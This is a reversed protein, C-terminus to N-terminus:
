DDAGGMRYKYDYNVIYDLEEESFGYHKALLKDIKDTIPKNHRPHFEDYIVKGTTKYLTTKRTANKRYNNMLEAVLSIIQKENNKHFASLNIPFNVIERKNLHRCDSMVVYWWYFLSSNILACLSTASKDNVFITKIQTSPKEGDRENWFYPIFDTARTWYRAADYFHVFHKNKVPSLASSLLNSCHIKSMISHEIDEGIKPISCVNKVIFPQSYAFSKFLYPRSESNWKLNMTTRPQGKGSTRLFISLKQEVDGFLKAPRESYTSVWFSNGKLKEILSSMNDTAFAPLPIIMGIFSNNSALSIAREVFFAYLDGCSETRFNRVTYQKRLDATYRVYPPNGIVVDFGGREVINYFESCWHFPKHTEQWKQLNENPLDDNIPIPVGYYRAMYRNLEHNLRGLESHLEAKAAGFEATNIDAVTQADVFRNYAVGVAGLQLYIKTAGGILQLEASAKESFDDASAFGVLANGSRINFDIDPLPELGMNPKSDDKEAVAALKLFLRLKAVEAAEPMIDVGFLNGLIISRYIWYEESSHTKMEALIRRFEKHRLAGKRTNDERLKDDEAVFGRMRRICEAYLPELVNLAAFLFAGSGCAPDLVSIGRRERANTGEMEKRGAVAVFFASIFDSGEHERLANFVLKEIDLNHTTLDAIDSIEGNMIKEKLALYRARRILAERWTETPLAFEEAAATNWKARRQLLDSANADLGARIKEPIQSESLNGGKRVSDYIYHDPNERLLKWITGSRANFAEACGDKARRLLHPLITNRAIYGTIDEQTYYAGMKARDNIYKEFIHGIVDPNIENGGATARDDLHWKYKDFFKFLRVFASDDIDLNEYQRELEHANFLGGNLYPVKGIRQKVDPAREAYPAALGRHFLTMLFHRYFSAYFSKGTDNQLHEALRNQLYRHDNNLFGRSQIFYVFMLRNLMLAAYQERDIQEGLGKVFEQFKYLEDRFQAYFNRTIKQANRVFVEEVKGVVDAVTLDNEDALTFLLGYLKELLFDPSQGAALSVEVIRIPKDPRKVAIMWVQAGSDDRLVLLHEYHFRSLEKQLRQRAAKDQLRSDYPATCVVFGRKQAIRSVTIKFQEGGFSFLTKFEGTALDWGLHDTFIERLAGSQVLSKLKEKKITM